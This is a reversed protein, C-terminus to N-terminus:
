TGVGMLWRRGTQHPYSKEVANVQGGVADQALNFDLLTHMFPDVIREWGKMSGM